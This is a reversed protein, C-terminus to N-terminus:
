QQCMMLSFHGWVTKSIVVKSVNM